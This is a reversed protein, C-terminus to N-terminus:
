IRVAKILFILFYLFSKEFDSSSVKFGEIFNFYHKKKFLEFVLRSVVFHERIASLFMTM